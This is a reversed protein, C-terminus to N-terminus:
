ALRSHKEVAAEIQGPEIRYGRVKMQQDVRGSFELDGGRCSRVV